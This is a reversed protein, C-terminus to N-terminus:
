DDRSLNFESRVLRFLIAAPGKPIGGKEWRSWTSATTGFASAVEGIPFNSIM